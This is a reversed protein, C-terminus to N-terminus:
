ILFSVWQFYTVYNIGEGLTQHADGHALYKLDMM